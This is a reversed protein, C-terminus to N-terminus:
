KGPAGEGRYRGHPKSESAIAGCVPCAVAVGGALPKLVTRRRLSRVNGTSVGNM